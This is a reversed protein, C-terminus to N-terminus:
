RHLQSVVYKNGEEEVHTFTPISLDISRVDSYDYCYDDDPDLRQADRPPVSIVTMKLTDGGAKILEVVQKHTAGEVNEGNRFCFLM